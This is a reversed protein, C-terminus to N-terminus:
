VEYAVAVLESRCRYGDEVVISRQEMEALLEIGDMIIRTWEWEDKWFSKDKSPVDTQGEILAAQDSLVCMVPKAAPGNHGEAFEARIAFVCEASLPVLQFLVDLVDNTVDESDANKMVFFNVRIKRMSPFQANVFTRFESADKSEFELIENVTFCDTPGNVFVRIRDEKPIPLTFHISMETAHKPLAEPPEPGNKLAEKISPDPVQNRNPHTSIPSSQQSSDWWQNNPIQLKNTKSDM